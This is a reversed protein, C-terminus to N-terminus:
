CMTKLAAEAVLRMGADVLNVNLTQVKTNAVAIDGAIKTPKMSGHIGKCTSATPICRSTPPASAKKTPAASSAAAARSAAPPASTSCCTPFRMASLNGGLQGRMARLPLRQQDITGVPRRQGPERFRRHRNPDLKANVALNLDATPLSPNFFGPDINKANLTFAQLPIEAFPALVLQGQGRRAGAKGSADIV